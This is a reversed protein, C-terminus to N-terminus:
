SCILYIFYISLIYLYITLFDKLFYLSYIVNIDNKKIILFM